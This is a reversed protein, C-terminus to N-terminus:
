QRGHVVAVPCTAHHLVGQSVSGLLAAMRPHTLHGGVVLLEQAHSQKVLGDVAHTRIVSRHVEVDPHKEQWGATTEALWRSAKPPPPLEASWQVDSNSSPRWCLVAHLPVNHRSAYDFAFSLV